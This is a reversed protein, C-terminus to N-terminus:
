AASPSVAVAQAAEYHEILQDVHVSPRFRTNILEIGCRGMEALRAPDDLLRQVAAAIAQPDKPPVVFGTDGDICWERVGGLDSAVVPVGRSLAEIGVIGLTEPWLSPFVFVTTQDLLDLVEDRSAWPRLELREECGYETAQARLGDATDGEVDGVMVGQVDDPLHGLAQIFYEHGKNPAVRGLYTITPREPVPRPESSPTLECFYPLVATTADDFGSADYRAKAGQSPAIVQAFESAHRIAWKTRHYFYAAYHPRPTVCHKTLTTTFCGLGCTRDCVEQTRKYFFSNAPCVWRYDHTTVVTPGYDFCAKLAGVNQVNHVHVLTPQETQLIATLQEEAARESGFSAERIAPAAHAAGHLSPDGESYAVATQIEREELRPLLALLYTEVGGKHALHENVHLVKM